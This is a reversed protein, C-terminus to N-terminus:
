EGSVTMREIKITPAAIRDRFELDNGVMEIQKLMEKLNGAITVEEVPFTLEGNEIWIGSAGRSYDGTVINVGFGILETVYFGNKVSRIIEAPSHKGAEIFLNNSAVGPPTSPGRTANGTSKLHLKRATYTNLLYSMLEGREIVVTRRTPLGDTDFPRSGLASPMRGDDVITLLECGIKEGLKGVLFSSKRVIADGSVAQLINSVLSASTLPDFIVPVQQTKVKRAGLKRLTRQAARQGISEPSELKGFTRKNDYWFDRQMHGNEAAVPITALSCATSEYAGVFGLSNAMILARAASDFGGGEFNVIRPDAERAAAEARLAMEIKKDTSLLPVEQDFLSLDPWETAIENREPLSLQEDVSTARALEVADEVLRSVAENAVDSTSVAAQRGEWIVRLGLEQSFSDKLTEVEGLRVSVSFNSSELIMVEAASAGKRMAAEVISAAFEKSNKM